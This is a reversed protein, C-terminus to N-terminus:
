NRSARVKDEIFRNIDSELWAIRAKTVRVSQPFEGAKILLYITSRSLGIRKIVEKQSILRPPKNSTHTDREQYNM